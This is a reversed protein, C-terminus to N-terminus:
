AHAKAVRGVHERHAGVGAKAAAVPITRLSAGPGGRELAGRASSRARGSTHAPPSRCLATADIARDPQGVQWCRVNHVSRPLVVSSFRLAAKETEAIFELYRCDNHCMLTRM